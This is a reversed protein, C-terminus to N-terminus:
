EVHVPHSTLMSSKTSGSEPRVTHGFRETVTRVTQLVREASKGDSNGIYQECIERLREADDQVIREGKLARGLLETLEDCSRAVAFLDLFDDYYVRDAYRGAAEAFLPLITNAGLIRSELVVTSNLAITALSERILEPAPTAVVNCNEISDLPRGLEDRVVQDIERIWWDEVNKPKIKFEVDPRSLAYEVFTVHTQRFLEVFGAADDRSFYHSRINEPPVEEDTFHGTLHGFSFLTVVPRESDSISARPASQSLINDARMLGTVTMREPEAINAESFLRVVTQNNVCIHTGLYKFQHNRWHETWFPVHRSDILTHEKHVTVFPLGARQAGVMWGIERVYHIACTLVCDLGHRRRFVDMVKTAYRELQVRRKLEIPCGEKFYDRSRSSPGLEFWDNIRFIVPEDITLITAADINAIADLDQGWRSPHLVLLTLSGPTDCTHLGRIKRALLVGVFWAMWQQRLLRKALKRLM